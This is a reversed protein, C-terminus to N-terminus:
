PITLVTGPRLPAKPSSLIKRNANYITKWRDAVGYFRRSIRQLSDGKAVRYRRVPAQAKAATRAGSPKHKEKEQRLLKELEAKEMRHREKLGRIADAQAKDARAAKEKEREVQTRFYLAKKRAESLERRVGIKERGLSGSLEKIRKEYRLRLEEKERDSESKVRAVAKELDAQTVASVAAQPPTSTSRRLEAVARQLEAKERASAKTLEMLKREYAQRLEEKEKKSDAKMKAVIAAAVPPPSKAKALADRKSRYEELNREAKKLRTLLTKNDKLYIAGERQLEACKENVLALRQRLSEDTEKAGMEESAAKKLAEFRENSKKLAEDSARKQANLSAIQGKLAEVTREVQGKELRYRELLQAKEKELSRALADIASKEEDAEAGPAEAEEKARDGKTLLAGMERKAQSLEERLAEVTKLYADKETRLASIDQQAQQLEAQLEASEAGGAGPTQAAAPAQAVVGGAKEEEASHIWRMVMEAKESQPELRLYEKYHAIARKKDTLYDDYIIGLDLHAAALNPDLHLAKEYTRIATEFDGDRYKGAGLRYQHLAGKHAKAQGTDSPGCGTLLLAMAAILTLGKCIYLVSQTAAILTLGKSKVGRIMEEGEVM